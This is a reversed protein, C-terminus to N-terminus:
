IIDMNRPFACSAYRLALQPSDTQAPLAHLSSSDLQRARSRSVYYTYPPIKRWGYNVRARVLAAPLILGGLLYTKGQCWAITNGHYLSHEHSYEDRQQMNDHQLLLTGRALCFGATSMAVPAAYRLGGYVAMPPRLLARLAFPAILIHCFSFGAATM